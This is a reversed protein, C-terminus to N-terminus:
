SRGADTLQLVYAGQQNETADVRVYYSGPVLTADLTFIEAGTGATDTALVQGLSDLLVGSAAADGTATIQIHKLETLTFAYYDTDLGLVVDIEGSAYGSASFGLACLLFDNSPEGAQCTLATGDPDNPGVLPVVEDDRDETGDGPDGDGDFLVAIRSSGIRSRGVAAPCGGGPFVIPVVEGDPDESGSGPGGDKTPLLRGVAEVARYASIWCGDGPFVIPVVEDDRDETGDGPDGDGAVLVEPQGPGLIPVVETDPDETGSGPGGDGAVAAAPESTLLQTSLRYSRGVDRGGHDVSGIRLFLTGASQVEVLGQDLFATTRIPALTDGDCSPALLELWATVGAGKGAPTSAAKAQLALWGPQDITVALVDGDASLEGSSTWASGAELWTAHSCPWATPKATAPFTALLLALGGLAISVRIRDNLFCVNM